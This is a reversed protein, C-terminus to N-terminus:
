FCEERILLFAPLLENPSRCDHSNEHVMLGWDQWISCMSVRSSSNSGIVSMLPGAVEAKICLRADGIIHTCMACMCSIGGTSWGTTSRDQQTSNRHRKQPAGTGTRRNEQARETSNKHRDRPLGTNVSRGNEPAGPTLQGTRTQGYAWAQHGHGGTGQGGMGQGGMGQGGMGQGGMGQGGMGPAGPTLQGTRTQGHWSKWGNQGVCSACRWAPPYSAKLCLSSQKHMCELVSHEKWCGGAATCATLFDCAKPTLPRLISVQM